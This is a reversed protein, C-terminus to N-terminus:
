IPVVPPWIDLIQGFIVGFTSKISFDDLNPGNSLVYYGFFVNLNFRSAIDKIDIAYGNPPLGYIPVM